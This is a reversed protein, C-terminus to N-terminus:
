RFEYIDLSVRRHDKPDYRVPVITGLQYQPILVRSIRIKTEARFAPQDVPRVDLLFGVVPDDNVTVGTDWIRLITAEASLGSKSLERAQALGSARDIIACGGVWLALAMLVAIAPRRM